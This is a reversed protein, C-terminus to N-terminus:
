RLRAKSRYDQRPFGAMLSLYLTQLTVNQCEPIFRAIDPAQQFITM